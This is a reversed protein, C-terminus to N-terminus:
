IHFTFTIVATMLFEGSTLHDRGKVVSMLDIHITFIYMIDLNQYKILNKSEYYQM